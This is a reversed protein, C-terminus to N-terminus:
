MQLGQFQSSFNLFYSWFYVKLTLFIEMCGLTLFFNDDGSM